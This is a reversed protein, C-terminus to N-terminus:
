NRQPFNYKFPPTGLPFETVIAGGCEVIKKALTRNSAPYIKDIGSGLVGITKSQYKVAQWHACSDVGLALGSVITIGNNVLESCIKETIQSGYASIKRSGVVAVNIGNNWDPQGYYYLLPPPAYIDNLSRPYYDDKITVIKAGIEEIKELENEPSIKGRTDYIYEVIKPELGVKTLEVTKAEWALQLDPFYNIIKQLRVPGLKDLSNFALWYKLDNKSNLSSM